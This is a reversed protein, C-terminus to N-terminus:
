KNPFCQSLENRAQAAREDSGGALLDSLATVFSSAEKIYELSKEILEQTHVEVDNPHTSFTKHPAPHAKTGDERTMTFQGSQVQDALRGAMDVQRIVLLATPQEHAYCFIGHAYLDRRKRFRALYQCTDNYLRCDAAPKNAKIAAFMVVERM